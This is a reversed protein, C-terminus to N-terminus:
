HGPHNGRGSRNANRIRKSGRDAIRAEISPLYISVRTGKNLESDVIIAGQHNKIIGYAAAMGLGRGHFKTTFFPEFIGDRTKEDMGKGDDEITFRIHSGPELQPAPMPSEDDILENRTSIRIRGPGEIAEASNTLIAALAMQMQAPDAEIDCADIALDTELRIASDINHRILSLIEEVFSNPSIAQTQYKGGRAYALLQETLHAMRGTSQKTQDVYKAINKDDPLKMQLLEMNGTVGVLANNFEHAIGGALTAIAETRQTQLIQQEFLKRGTIDMLNGLLAPRGQYDIVVAQAQMWRTDGDKTVFRFQPEERPGGAMRKMATAIVWEKDDPHIFMELTPDPIDELALGSVDSIWKNAFVVKGDQYIFIGGQLNDVLTRYREESQQLAGEAQKQETIDRLVVVKCVLQEGSDVQYSTRVGYIRRDEKDGLAIERSVEAKDPPFGLESSWYSWMQAIPQGISESASHDIVREASPNMDMIHDQADLVIVADSMNEIIADRAVPLTDLLRFRFLAWAFALCTITFAFPTIDLHPLPSRGSLYIINAFFPAFTATLMVGAQKRYLRSSYLFVRAILLIGVAFLFYSYVSHVWFGRGYTHALLGFSGSTDLTSNAWVLHHVGNTWVLALMLIPEVALLGLRRTRLWKERRAYLLAFLLWGAPITVIGIYQVKAWFIKAAFSVSALGLAYALSWEAVALMILVLMQAPPTRQKRWAYLGFAAMGVGVVILPITYPTYQWTM